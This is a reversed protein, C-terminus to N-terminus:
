EKNLVWHGGSPSAGNGAVSLHHPLDRPVPDGELQAGVPLIRAPPVPFAGTRGVPPVQPQLQCSPYQPSHPGRRCGWAWTSVPPGSAQLPSHRPDCTPDPRGAWRRSPMQPQTGWHLPRQPSAERGEWRQAANSQM